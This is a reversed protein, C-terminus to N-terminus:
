SCLRTEPVAAGKTPERAAEATKGPRAAKSRDVPHRTHTAAMLISLGVVAPNAM